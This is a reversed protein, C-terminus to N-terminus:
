MNPPNCYECNFDYKNRAVHWHNHARKRGMKRAHSSIGDADKQQMQKESGTSLHGYLKGLERARKSKGDIDKEAFAPNPRGKFYESIKKRQEVSIIKGPRGVKANWEPSHPRGKLATSNKPNPRGKFYASLKQKAAETQKRGTMAKSLALKHAPTRVYHKLAESVKKRSEESPNSHGDGGDTMNTLPGAKRDIRGIAKILTIETKIAESEPINERVMIKPIEELMIWTQEIIENKLWNDPSSSKEHELWRNGKGKGIYFPVGRWDFLTYVYYVPSLDFKRPM